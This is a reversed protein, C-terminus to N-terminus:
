PFSLAKITDMINALYFYNEHWVNFAFHVSSGNSSAIINLKNKNRWVKLLMWCSRYFNWKCSFHNWAVMEFSSFYGIMKLNRYKQIIQNRESIGKNEESQEFIYSCLRAAPLYKIIFSFQVQRWVSSYQSLSVLESSKILSDLDLKNTSNALLTLYQNFWTLRLETCDEAYFM